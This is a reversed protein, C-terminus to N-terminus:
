QLSGAGASKQELMASFSNPDNLKALMSVSATSGGLLFSESDVRVIALFRKDGLSVSECVRLRKQPARMNRFYRLFSHWLSRDTNQLQREAAGASIATSPTPTAACAKSQEEAKATENAAQIEISPTPEAIAFATDSLQRERGNRARAETRPRGVRARNTTAKRRKPQEAPSQVALDRSM